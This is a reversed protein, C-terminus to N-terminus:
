DDDALQRSFWLGFLPGALIMVLLRLVQVSTVFALDVDSTVAVALVANLGGPTTALYGDLASKDTVEALVLGIGACVAILAVTAAAVAPLARRTARLSEVTFLLGIQVGIVVLAADRLPMPITPAYQSFAFCFGASLVMPILLSGSPIPAVRLLLVTVLTCAVLLAVGVLEPHSGQALTAQHVPQSEDPLLGVALPLMAIVLYVRAYQMVAVLRSDAGVEGSVAVIGSAGGPILGLQATAQDVDTVRSVVAAALMSVGITALLVLLVAVWNATVASLSERRILTGLTVGLVVHALRSLPEFVKLQGDRRWLVVAGAAVIGALVPAGPLGAWGLAVALATAVLVVCAWARGNERAAAVGAVNSRWGGSAIM